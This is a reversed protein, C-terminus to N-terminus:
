SSLGVKKMLIKFRPDAQIDKWDPHKGIFLIGGSREELAKELYYFVKDYDKLAKYILVFDFNFSTGPNAAEREKLIRLCKEVEDRKGMLAYIVGLPAQGKLGITDGVTKSQAYLFTELAKEYDNMYIYNYGLSWLASRFNSDLELTKIFQEKADQYREAFVYNEGLDKNIILSLPDLSLAKETEEVCQEVNGIARLYLSYYYHVYGAGPNLQLATNFSKFAGDWDWDYFMKVLALSVHAETLSNDMELAQLAYKKAEEYADKPKMIGSLASILYSNALASYPLAFKKEKNIADLFFSVSKTIDEPTWKNFYFIGKLYDNYADLNNTYSKILSEESSKISFRERLKNVIKRSIEDQVEFIDELNRNFVESWVHYGDVTNILQATIRIKNGSKRVSGELVSNVNLKTGIERIDENKGKFAFSSTRSTVKLGDINTLANLIEETIGDSFYENEPDASMNVFPLVAISHKEEFGTKAKLQQITPINLGPNTLAYIKVPAKVNKLKYSGLFEASLNSHNKIEDFLKDSILVGGPVSLSEIRSAINVGDGYIGDDDHVIDGSHIGIRLPVEPTKLLEKQIEVACLASHIASGFVALAGDGYYQLIKGQHKLINEELTKRYRDRSEKAKNENEQMLATYGVMDSFMIASLMRVSNNM